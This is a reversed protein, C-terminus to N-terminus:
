FSMLDYNQDATYMSEEYDAGRDILDAVTKFIIPKDYVSYHFVGTDNILGVLVKNLIEKELEIGWDLFLYYLLSTTSGSNIDNINVDGFGQNAHHDINIIKGRLNIKEKLGLRRLDNVDLAFFLDYKSLDIKGPNAIIIDKTQIWCTLWLM